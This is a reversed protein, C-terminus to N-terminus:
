RAGLFGVPRTAPDVPAGSCACWRLFCTVSAARRRRRTRIEGRPHTTAIISAALLTRRVQKRHAPAGSKRRDAASKERRLGLLVHNVPDGM